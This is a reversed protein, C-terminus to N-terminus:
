PSVEDINAKAVRFNIAAVWPNADWADPGHLSNWLTRFSDKTPTESFTNPEVTAQDMWWVFWRDENPRSYDRAVPAMDWADCEVGEAEADEEIIEQLRQVRVGEVILTLRSAWRPMHISPRWPGVEGNWHGQRIAPDARYQVPMLAPQAWAERVWLRDGPRAHVRRPTVVIEVGGSSHPKTAEMYPPNAPTTKYGSAFRWTVGSLDAANVTPKVVRRTQTKHSALLARVEWERMNIPRDTM